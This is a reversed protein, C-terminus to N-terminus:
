AGGEAPRVAYIRVRPGGRCVGAFGHVPLYYADAEEFVPAGARGCTPDFDAVLGLRPALAAIAAPDVRSSFLAHDHTVLYQAGAADLAGATPEVEAHRLGPPIQPRGWAWIRTGAVAVFAGPPVHAALWRTALVRTDPESALRDHAVTAALPQAGLLVAVAAVAAARVRPSPLRAALAGVGGAVLLAVVPMVPTLYRALLVPSAGVVLYYSVAYVAALRVLPRADFAAWLVALPTALAVAAGAGYWLSFRLHYGFAAHPLWAAVGAGAPAGAVPEGLFGPLVVHAVMVLFERTKPNTLLFPSTGLFVLAAVAAAAVAEPPVLRRWGRRATGMVAGAWVPVALLVGPYKVATAAGLAVGARVVRGRTAGRALAASAALALVVAFSLATDPKLSHSDRAHLFNTALLWGALLATPAGLARRAVLVLAPVALTGLTASLAREILLLREPATALVSAYGAQPPLAGVWEGLRLGMAGWAWCLYVWASPYVAWDLDLQGAAVKGTMLLIGEDDPRAMLHPLGLGLGWFRLVGALLTLAVVGVSFSRGNM